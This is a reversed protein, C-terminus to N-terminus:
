GREVILTNNQVDVVKVPSGSPIATLDKSMADFERVQSQIMVNVKGTGSMNAPIKLYVSATRGITNKIDVNGSSVLKTMGYFFGAVVVAFVSGVIISVVVVLVPNNLAGKAHILAIGSWGLMTFFAVLSRISLLQFHAQMDGHGSSVDHHFDISDHSMGAFTLIAQILLATSAIVAIFWYVHEIASMGVWWENM